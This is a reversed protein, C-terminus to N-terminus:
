NLQAQVVEFGAQTLVGGQRLSMAMPLTGDHPILLADSYDSVPYHSQAGTLRIYVAQVQGSPQVHAVVTPVLSVVKDRWADSVDYDILETSLGNTSLQGALIRHYLTYVVHDAESDDGMLIEPTTPPLELRLRLLWYLKYAIQQKLQPIVQQPALSSLEGIVIDKFPKAILGDYGVGDIALKGRLTRTFFRPSGTLFVTPLDLQQYLTDMGPLTDRETADSSVLSVLGSASSFESSLYTKDVDSRIVPATRSMELLRVDFAGALTGQYCAEVRYRGARLHKGVLSISTDLYGEGNARVTSLSIGGQPTLITLEVLADRIENQFLQEYPATAAFDPQEHEWVLRGRVPFANTTGLSNGIDAYAQRPSRTAEFSISVLPALADPGVISVTGGFEDSYLRDVSGDCDNDVASVVGGVSIGTDVDLFRVASTVVEGVIQECVGVLLSIDVSFSTFGLSVRLRDDGGIMTRVLEPCDVAAILRDHFNDIADLGLVDSAIANVVESWALEVAHADVVFSGSEVVGSWTAAVPLVLDLQHAKGDRIVHISHFQERGVMESAGIGAELDITSDVQIRASLEALERYFPDEMLKEATTSQNIWESVKGNMLKRVASEAEQELFSPVGLLGVAQEILVDEVLDGVHRDQHIPGSLDWTGTSLFPGQWADPVAPICLGNPQSTSRSMQCSVVFAAYGIVILPATKTM